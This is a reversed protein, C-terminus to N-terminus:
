MSDRNSLVSENLNGMHRIDSSNSTTLLENDHHENGHNHSCKGHKHDHKHNHHSHTDQSANEHNDHKKHSHHSHEHGHSCKSHDHKKEVTTKKEKKKEEHKSHNHSCKSGHSHDHGDSVAEEDHHHVGSGHGHDHNCKQGNGHMPDDGSHLIQMQILNFVLCVISVIFMVEGEVKPREFLLRQIAAVVLFGTILWISLISLTAGLVEARHYGWSYKRTANKTGIFLGIVSFGIGVVDSLLHAADSMIAISNAIYGGIIEVSM